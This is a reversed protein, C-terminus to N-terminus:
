ALSINQRPPINQGSQAYKWAPPFYQRRLFANFLKTLFIIDRKTPYRLVRNQIGNPGPAKGFRLKRIAQLVELPSTLDPESAPADNFMADNFTDYVALDLPDEAPHFQAWEV